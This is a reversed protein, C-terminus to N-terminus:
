ELVAKMNKVADAPFIGKRAASPRVSVDAPALPAKFSFSHRLAAEGWPPPSNRPSRYDQEAGQMSSNVQRFRDFIMGQDDPHIGVGSESVTVEVERGGEAVGPPNKSRSVGAGDEEGGCGGALNDNAVPLLLSRCGLEMRVSGGTDTYKIANGILNNM